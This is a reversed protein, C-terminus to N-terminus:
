NGGGGRRRRTKRGQARILGDGPPWSFSSVGRDLHLHGHLLIRRRVRAAPEAVVQQCELLLAALDVDELALEGEAEVKDGLTRKIQDRGADADRPEM